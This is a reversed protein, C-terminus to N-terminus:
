INYYIVSCLVEIFHSLALHFVFCSEVIVSINVEKTFCFSYKWVYILYNFFINLNFFLYVSNFLIFHFSTYNGNKTWMIYVAELLISKNAQNCDPTVGTSKQKRIEDFLLCVFLLSEPFKYVFCMKLYLRLSWPQIFFLM